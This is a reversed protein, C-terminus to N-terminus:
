EQVYVRRVRHSINTFVEYPITQLATALEQVSPSQGFVIVEDGARAEPIHSVDAMCMDMCINGVLPARKGRIGVAYRKNGALRLLGDAYGVSLTAIRSKKELRGKRSYGISSGSPLDKIQSITAKLVLVPELEKQILNASDIGYVGIGLRVMDMQYEPFRLIGASNLIHRWPRYGLQGTLHEYMSTFRGIQQLSYADEESSESAALHSFVSAVKLRHRHKQLLDWLKPLEEETFGLRNMGTELKIHVPFPRADEPLYRILMEVQELSYLEPELHYRVLADLEAEDPNLVLIPLQIGAKRLEIGEDIYAVSLYDIQQFELLRAVELAGSGYASAKVMVLLKVGPQLYQHYINLNHRLAHLNIELTTRHTKLALRDAIREFTFRRAGKLLISSNEPLHQHLYTLYQDTTDFFHQEMSPPLDKGIVKCEHGIGVFTTVASEVLLSAVKPYFEEQPEGMQLIDSLVVIKHPHNAQQQLFELAIRLANLDSNYADNIITCNQIGPRLELRMAVPELQLMREAIKENAYGRLLMFAWCHIANEISAQDTFPIQIQLEKDRFSASLQTQNGITRKELIQLDAPLQASWSFVQNSNLKAQVQEDILEYDRCYILKEVQEFLGLKEAVKEEMSQFGANHASGINTFIGIQPRILPTLRKMEGKQSIGAEFIGLHHQQNIQWLSLPVGIQSNYSKPSRVIRVNDHLLQFLWEKIITKGNSGTIAVIPLSFQERHFRAIDQLAQITNEVLVFNAEQFPTTDIEQSIIFNRVGDEYAQQIFTHGDQRLGQIAFFLATRAFFIQRSDTLLHQIPTEEGKRLLKGQTISLITQISISM